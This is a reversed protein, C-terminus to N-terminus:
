TDLGILRMLVKANSGVAVYQKEKMDKYIAKELKAMLKASM